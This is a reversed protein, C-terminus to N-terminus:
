KIQVMCHFVNQKFVMSLIITLPNIGGKITVNKIANNTRVICNRHTQTSSSTPFPTPTNIM